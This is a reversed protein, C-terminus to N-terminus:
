ESAAAEEAPADETAAEEAPAEEAAEEGGAAEAEVEAVEEVEQNEVAEAQLYLSALTQSSSLPWGPSVQVEPTEEVATPETDAM